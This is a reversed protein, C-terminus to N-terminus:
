PLQAVEVHIRQVVMGIDLVTMSHSDYEITM